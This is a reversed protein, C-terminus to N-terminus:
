YIVLLDVLTIGYMDDLILVQSPSFVLGGSGNDPCSLEYNETM